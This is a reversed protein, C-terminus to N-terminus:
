RWEHQWRPLHRLGRVPKAPEADLEEPHELLWDSHLRLSLACADELDGEYDVQQRVNGARDLVKIRWMKRMM